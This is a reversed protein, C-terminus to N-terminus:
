KVLFDWQSESDRKCSLGPWPLLWIVVFVYM